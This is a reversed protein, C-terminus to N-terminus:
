VVPTEWDDSAAITPSSLSTTGGRALELAAAAVTRLSKPSRRDPRSPKEM